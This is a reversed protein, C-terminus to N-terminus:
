IRRSHSAVARVTNLVFLSLAIASLLGGWVRWRGLVDVLDGVVRL